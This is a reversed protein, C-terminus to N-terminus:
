ETVVSEYESIDVKFGDAYNLKLGTVYSEMEDSFKQSACMYRASYQESGDSSYSVTRDADHALRMIVHYGYPSEVVASVEGAKLSKVADEFETVMTGETFVYGDPYYTKGTDEDFEAKLEAFRALLKKDDDIAGLEEAIKDAQAKKEAIEDETLSEGTSPNATMLLIHSASLYGNDELYAVAEEDSVKEGGEGYKAVFGNNYIKDVRNLRDYLDRDLYTDALKRNFDDETAGEGCISVIDSELQAAVADEDAKTLKIKNKEAYGEIGYLQTLMFGANDVALDSYNEGSGDGIDDAWSVRSGGYAAMQVFYSQMQSAQMYLWYYYEQWTVEHGDIEGIIEEADRSNYLAAFDVVTYEVPASTEEAAATDAADAPAASAAVEATAGEGEASGCGALATVALCLVMLLAIIKKM